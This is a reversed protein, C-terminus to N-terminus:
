RLHLKNFFDSRIRETSKVAKEFDQLNSESATSLDFIAVRKIFTSWELIYCVQGQSSLALSTRTEKDIIGFKHALIRALAPIEYFSYKQNYKYTISSSYICELNDSEGLIQFYSVSAHAKKLDSHIDNKQGSSIRM